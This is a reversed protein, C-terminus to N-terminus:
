HVMTTRELADRQALYSAREDETLPFRELIHLAGSRTVPDETPDDLLKLLAQKLGDFRLQGIMVAGVAAQRVLRDGDALARRVFPAAQEGTRDWEAVQQVAHARVLADPHDTLEILRPLLSRTEAQSPLGPPRLAMLAGALAAPDREAVVAPMALAFAAASPEAVALLEFGSARALPDDARALALAAAELEPSPSAALMERIVARAPRRAERRYHDLVETRLTPNGELSAVLEQRLAPDPARGGATAAKALWAEASLPARAVHAAPTAAPDGARRGVGVGGLAAAVVASLAIWWPVQRAARPTQSRSYSPVAATPDSSM